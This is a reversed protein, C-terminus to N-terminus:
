RLAPLRQPRSGLDSAAGPPQPPQPPSQQYTTQPLKPKGLTLRPVGNEDVETETIKEYQLLTGTCRKLNILAVNYDVLSRAFAFEADALREQANLLDHLVVGAVQQDGPLLQWRERLYRVEGDNALMAQSRSLLEQHTTDVERAAIEVETRVNATTVQLENAAQRLELRRQRLRANAARNGFPVEFSLGTSFTPRGLTYQNGIATLIDGGGQLGYVYTGLILNLVPLVENKSVDARVAAARMERNAQNIEPRNSLAAVLSEPLSTNLYGLNPRQCPILELGGGAQLDPDNILVRLRAEANQVETRFRIM